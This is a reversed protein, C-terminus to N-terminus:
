WRHAVDIVLRPTHDTNPTGDLTFVRFPLRARVGLALTTQGEFSGAWAVQRFTSYGGVAVVERRNRPEFTAGHEGYAPAKVIVQLVAGGRVPVVAGSGDAVVTRVYRVDYSGFTADQGGVDFVLRDFCAHRGARVGNLSETDARTDHAKPLSGWSVSCRDAASAPTAGVLVAAVATLVALVLAVSRSRATTM